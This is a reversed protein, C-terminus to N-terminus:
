LQMESAGNAFTIENGSAVTVVNAANNCAKCRSRVCFVNRKRDRFVVMEELPKDKDCDDCHVEAPLDEYRAAKHANRIPM